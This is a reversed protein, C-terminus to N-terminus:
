ATGAPKRAILREALMHTDLAITATSRAGHRTTHINM